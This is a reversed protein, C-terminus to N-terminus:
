ALFEKLIDEILKEESSDSQKSKKNNRFKVPVKSSVAAKELVTKADMTTTPINGNQTDLIEHAIQHAIEPVIEPTVESEHAEMSRREQVEKKLSEKREQAITKHEVAQKEKVVQKELLLARKIEEQRVKEERKNKEEEKVEAKKREIEAREAERKQELALRAEIKIRESLEHAEVRKQKNAAKKKEIELRKAEKQSEKAEKAEVKKSMRELQIAEKKQRNAVRREVKTPAQINLKATAEGQLPNNIVIEGSEQMLFGKKYQEMLEPHLHEQELRVKFFNELYDKMNLRVVDRKGSLNMMGELFILLGSTLIGVSFTSLIEQKGCEYILGLVASISGILLCLMLIQGGINEWTSLLIGCFKHRYVYKDVFIDVNNVGIKLKYCTEFKKKMMQTLKNRATGMNDSAKILRSYVIDLMLKLIIGGVCLGLMIYMFVNKDFLEQVM